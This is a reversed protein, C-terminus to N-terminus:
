ECVFLLLICLGLWFMGVVWCAWLFRVKLRKNCFGHIFNQWPLSYQKRLSARAGKSFWNSKSNWNVINRHELKRLFSIIRHIFYYSAEKPTVWSVFLIGVGNFPLLDIIRNFFPPLPNFIGFVVIRLVHARNQLKEKEKKTTANSKYDAQNRKLSKKGYPWWVWRYGGM